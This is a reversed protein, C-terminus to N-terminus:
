GPISFNGGLKDSFFEVQNFDGIIVVDPITELISSILQWVELRNTVHPSGFVFMVYKIEDGQVLKFLYVNQSSFVPVLGIPAFWCIFMGGSLGIADISCCGFFHLSALKQVVNNVFLMTELLCVMDLGHSRVLSSICPIKPSDALGLGRCNSVGVKMQMTTVWFPLDSIGRLNKFVSVGFM